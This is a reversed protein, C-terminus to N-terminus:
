WAILANTNEGSPGHDPIRWGLERLMEAAEQPADRVVTRIQRRRWTERGDRLAQEWGQRADFGCQSIAFQLFDEICPRFREGGVPLHLSSFDHPRPVRQPDVAHARGLLHSMAGREAHVQWHASPASYMDARYELRVLPTRDLLSLVALDMRVTKLHTDASDMGLHIRVSMSALQEGGVRLPIRQAAAGSGAPTVLYRESESPSAVSQMETVDPLSANLTAQIEGAFRASRERLSEPM